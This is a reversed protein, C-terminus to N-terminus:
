GEVTKPVLYGEGDSDPACALLAERPYSPQLEDARLPVAWAGDKLSVASTDVADLTEMYALIQNLDSEMSALKEGDLRSLAALHNISEKDFKM